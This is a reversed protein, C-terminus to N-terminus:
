YIGTYGLRHRERIHFMWDVADCQNKFWLSPMLFDRMHWDHKWRRASLQFPSFFLAAAQTQLRKSIEKWRTHIGSAKSLNVPREALTEERTCNKLCIDIFDLCPVPLSIGSWRKSTRGGAPLAARTKGDRRPTKSILRSLQNASNWSCTKIATHCMAATQLWSLFVVIESTPHSSTFAAPGLGPCHLCISNM